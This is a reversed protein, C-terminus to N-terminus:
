NLKKLLKVQWLKRRLDLIVEFLFGNCVIQECRTPFDFEGPLRRVAPRYAIRKTYFGTFGGLIVGSDV